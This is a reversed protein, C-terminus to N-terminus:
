RWRARRAWRGPRRKRTGIQQEDCCMGSYAVYVDTQAWQEIGTMSGPAGANLAPHHGCPAARPHLGTKAAGDPTASALQEDASREPETMGVSVAAGSLLPPWKTKSGFGYGRGCHDIFDPEIVDFLVHAAAVRGPHRHHREDAYPRASSPMAIGQAAMKMGVPAGPRLEEEAFRGVATGQRRPSATVGGLWNMLPVTRTGISPGAYGRSCIRRSRTRCERRDARGAALRPREFQPRWAGTAPSTMAPRDGAPVSPCPWRTRLVEPAARAAKQLLTASARGEPALFALLPEARCQGLSSRRWTRRFQGVVALVVVLHHPVPRRPPWTRPITRRVSSMREIFAAPPAVAWRGDTWWPAPTGGSRATVVHAPQSGAGRRRATVARGRREM